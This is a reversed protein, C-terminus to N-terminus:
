CLFGLKNKADNLFLTQEPKMKHAILFEAVKQSQSELEVLLKIRIGFQAQYKELFPYYIRKAHPGLGVFIYNKM